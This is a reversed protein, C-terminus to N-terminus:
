IPTDDVTYRYVTSRDHFLTLAGFSKNLHQVDLCPTVKM